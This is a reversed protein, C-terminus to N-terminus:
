EETKHTWDLKELVICVMLATVAATTPCNKNGLVIAEKQLFESNDIIVPSAFFFALSAQLGSSPGQVKCPTVAYLALCAYMCLLGTIHTHTNKRIM